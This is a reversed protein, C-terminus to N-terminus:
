AAIRLAVPVYIGPFETSVASRLDVKGARDFAEIVVAFTQSFGDPLEGRTMLRLRLEWEGSAYGRQFDHTFYLLPNWPYRVDEEAGGISVDSMTNRTRKRLLGVVRCLSYKSADDDSVPPDFVVTGRVTLRSRKDAVLADPLHFPIFTYHDKTLEGQYLYTVSHPSTYLTANVDPEGFGCFHHDEVPPGPRPVTVEKTFHCLLAKVLNPTAGPYADFLRAAYQSILPAAYSTGADYELHTGARGLGYAAIRPSLAWGNGDFLVNGGHAALEPKVGADAGPGRRSYPAIEGTQSVCGEEHARAVSGVSLVLLGEAPSLVRASDPVFHAPPLATPSNINGASVVFLVKHQRALFDLLRALTSYFGDRAPEVGLSINFVQSDAALQPVVRELIDALSTAEPMVKNGLADIGTVQLDILRCWPTARRALVSTIDDGYVVRSAVFTGHALHPGVSTPPLEPLVTTVLGALLANTTHIGSDVVVVPTQCKPNDVQILPPVAEAQMGAEALVMVNSEIARVFMYQASLDTIEQSTLLSSIVVGGNTFRHVAVDRKGAERLRAAIREALALKTETPLSTYLAILCPKLEDPDAPLMVAVKKEVGVPALSEIAGFNSKGRHKPTGAYTELRKTLKPLDERSIRGIAKEPQESSYSIIEFGLNRLHAREAAVSRGQATTIELILSEALDLDQKGAFENLSNRFSELLRASHEALDERHFSDGGRGVGAPATRVREHSIWLHSNDPM